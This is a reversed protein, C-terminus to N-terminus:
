PNNRPANRALVGIKAVFDQLPKGVAHGYLTNIRDQRINLGKSFEEALRDRANVGEGVVLKAVGGGDLGALRVMEVLNRATRPYAYGDTAISDQHRAKGGMASVLAAYSFRSAMQVLGEEFPEKGLEHRVARIGTMSHMIEHWLVELAYEENFALNEGKGAKAIANVLLSAPKFGSVLEDADSFYLTGGDIAAFFEPNSVAHIGDFGERFWEPRRKALTEVAGEVTDWGPLSITKMDQALKDTLASFLV